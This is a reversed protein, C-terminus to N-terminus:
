LVGPRVLLIKLFIPILTGSVAFIILFRFNSFIRKKNVERTYYMILLLSFLYLIVESSSVNRLYSVAIGLFALFFSFLRNKKKLSYQFLLLNCAIFIFAFQKLYDFNTEIEGTRFGGANLITAKLFTTGGNLFIWTLFIALTLSHLFHASNIECSSFKKRIAAFRFSDFKIFHKITFHYIILALIIFLSALIIGKNAYLSMNDYLYKDNIRKIMFENQIYILLQLNLQKKEKQM